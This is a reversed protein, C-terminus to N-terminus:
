NQPRREDHQGREDGAELPHSLTDLLEALLTLHAPDWKALREQFLMRQASRASQIREVALPTPELIRARRDDPHPHSVVLGLEELAHVQRSMVSKDVALNEALWGSQVPGVHVLASLIKYGIPQLSSDISAAGDKWASRVRRFLTGLSEEVATVAEAHGLSAPASQATMDSMTSSDNPVRVV